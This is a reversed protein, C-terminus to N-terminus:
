IRIREDALEKKIITAISQIAENFNYNKIIYDVNTLVEDKSFVKADDIARRNWESEDFGGRLMAREKRTNEDVYIYFSKVRNGYVRKFNKLGQIDLVVVYATDDNVQNKEVGYYWIDKKGKYLTEYPRVEVFKGSSEMALFEDKTKFIYPNMESESERMPRTTTSVVFKYGWEAMEQALSDKGGGSEAVLVVIDNNMPSKKINNLVSKDYKINNESTIINYEDNNYKM